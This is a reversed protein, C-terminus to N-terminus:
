FGTLHNKRERTYAKGELTYESVSMQKRERTCHSSDMWREGAQLRLRHEYKSSVPGSQQLGRGVPGQRKREESLSLEGLWGCFSSELLLGLGVGRRLHKM